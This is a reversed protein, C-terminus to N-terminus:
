GRINLDRWSANSALMESISRGTIKEVQQFVRNIHSVLQKRRAQVEEPFTPNTVKLEFEGIGRKAYYEKALREIEEESPKYKNDIEELEERLRQLLRKLMRLQEEDSLQRSM